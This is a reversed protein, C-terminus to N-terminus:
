AGATDSGAPVANCETSFGTSREKGGAARNWRHVEM